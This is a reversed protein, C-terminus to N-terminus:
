PDSWGKAPTGEAPTCPVTSTYVAERLTMPANLAMGVVRIWGHLVIVSLAAPRHRYTCPGM